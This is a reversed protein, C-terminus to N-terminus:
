PEFTLDALDSRFATWTITAIPWLIPWRLLAVAATGHYTSPNLAIAADGNLKSGPIM